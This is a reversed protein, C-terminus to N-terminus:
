FYMQQIFGPSIPYHQNYNPQSHISLRPRHHYHHHKQFRSQKHTTLTSLLPVHAFAREVGDTMKHLIQEGYTVSHQLTKMITSENSNKRQHYTEFSQLQSWFGVNPLALQRRQKVLAFATPLPLHHHKILYALIFTVSRSRGHHCYLLTRRNTAVNHAIRDAITDFYRSAPFTPIDEIPYKLSEIGSSPPFIIQPLENAVNIVCTIGNSFVTPFQRATDEATVFVYPTIQSINYDVVVSTLNVTSATSVISNNRDLTM